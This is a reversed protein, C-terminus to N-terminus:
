KKMHRGAFSEVPWKEDEMSLIIQNIEEEYREALFHKSKVHLNPRDWIEAILEGKYGIYLIDDGYYEATLDESLELDLVPDYGPLAPFMGPSDQLTWRDDM